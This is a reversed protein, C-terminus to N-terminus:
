SDGQNKEEVNDTSINNNYNYDFISKCKKRLQPIIVYSLSMNHENYM